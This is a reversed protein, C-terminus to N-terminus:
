AAARRCEKILGSTMLYLVIEAQSQLLVLIDIHELLHYKTSWGVEGPELCPWRLYFRGPQTLDSKNKDM